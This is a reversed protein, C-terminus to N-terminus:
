LLAHTKDELWKLATDEGCEIAMEVARKAYELLHGSQHRM